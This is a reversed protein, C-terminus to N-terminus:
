RKVIKGNADRVYEAAFAPNKLILEDYAEPHSCVFAYAFRAKTYINKPGDKKAIRGALKRSGFIYILVGCVASAVGILCNAYDKAPIADKQVAFASIFFVFALIGFVASVFTARPAYPYRTYFIM